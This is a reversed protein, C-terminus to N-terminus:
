TADADYAPRAPPAEVPAAGAATAGHARPGSDADTGTSRDAPRAAPRDVSDDTAPDDDQPRMAPPVHPARDSVRDGMGAEDDEDLLADRVIRRPDYRRPDLAQWDIDDFDEGMEKRVQERAGRAFTRAERVWHGLQAAYTPLREPGLVVVAVAGLVLLEGGNIDFPM